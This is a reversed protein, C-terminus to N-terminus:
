TGGLQAMARKLDKWRRGRTRAFTEPFRRRLKQARRAARESIRGLVFPANAPLALDGEDAFERLRISALEEDHLDGLLDQLKGLRRALSEAPKGYIPGVFEIAYRARKCRIRLEHLQASSSEPGTSRAARRMARYRKEVLIPAVVRVPLQAEAFTLGPGRAFASLESRVRAFRTTEMAEVLEVHARIRRERLADDLAHLVARDEAEIDAGSEELWRRQVDLDRVAGLLSATWRLETRLGEAWAPVVSRFLKLATRVRRAAVRMDHIAAPDDGVRVAPELVLFRSAPPRVVILAADGAPTSPELDTPGLEPFPVVLPRNGGPDPGVWAM